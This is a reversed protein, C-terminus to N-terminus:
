LGISVAPTSTGQSLTASQGTANENTAGAGANLLSISHMVWTSSSNTFNITQSGSGAGLKYEASEYYFQNGTTELTFGSGATPDAGNSVVCGFLAGSNSGATLTASANASTTEGASQSTDYATASAGQLVWVNIDSDCTTSFNAQVTLSGGTAVNDLLYWAINANNVGSAPGVKTGVLSANSNSSVTISTITATAHYWMIGILITDGATVGTPNVSIASFSSVTHYFGVRTIAM